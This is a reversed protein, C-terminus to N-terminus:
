FDLIDLERPIVFFDEFANEKLVIRFVYKTSHNTSISVRHGDGLLRSQDHKVSPWANALCECDLQGCLVGPPGQDTDGHGIDELRALVPWPSHPSDQFHGAM